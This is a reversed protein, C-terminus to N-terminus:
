EFIKMLFWEFRQAIFKTAQEIDDSKVNIWHIYLHGDDTLDVSLTGPTLTISNALATIGSETKLNTKIKVIGPNIPMKPHLVRYVVDLNAKIVYYFFVPMYVLAWFIRVPSIFVRHEKPLIEHFLLAVILAIIIGAAIVQIDIKGDVFPWTLLIWIILALIFYVFRRM